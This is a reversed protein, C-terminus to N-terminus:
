SAKNRDKKIENLTLNVAEPVAAAIEDSLDEGFECPINRMM